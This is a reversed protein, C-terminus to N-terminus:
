GGGRLLKITSVTPVRIILDDLESNSIEIRGRVADDFVVSGETPNKFRVVHPNM